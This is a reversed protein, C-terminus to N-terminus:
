GPGAGSEENAKLTTIDHQHIANSRGEESGTRVVLVHHGVVQLSLGDLTQHLLQIQRRLFHVAHDAAGDDHFDLGAVDGAFGGEAGADGLLDGTVGDSEGADGGVDGNGGTM